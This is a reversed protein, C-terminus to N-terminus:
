SEDNLAMLKETLKCDYVYIYCSKVLIYVSKTILGYALVVCVNNYNRLPFRSELIETVSVVVDPGM